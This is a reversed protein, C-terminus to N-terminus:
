GPAPICAAVFGEVIGLDVCGGQEAEAGAAFSPVACEIARAKREYGSSDRAVVLLIQGEAAEAKKEAVAAEVIGAFIDDFGVVGQVGPAASIGGKPKLIDVM